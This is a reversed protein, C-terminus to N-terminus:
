GVLLAVGALCLIIGAIKSLSFTEGLFWFSLLCTVVPYISTIVVIRSVEGKSLALYYSCGAAASIFGTLLALGVARPNGPSFVDRGIWLLLIPVATTYGILSYALMHQPKLGDSAIKGVFAWIGWLLVALMSFIMWGPM